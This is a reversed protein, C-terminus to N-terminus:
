NSIITVWEGLDSITDVVSEVSAQDPGIIVLTKDGMREIHVTIDDGVWLRRTGSIRVLEWSGQSKAEALELYAAHYEAGEKESDWAYL